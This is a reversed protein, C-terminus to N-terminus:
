RVLSMIVEGWGGEGLSVFLCSLEPLGGVDDGALSGVCHLVNLATIGRVDHCALGLVRHLIDLVKGSIHPLLELGGRVLNPLNGLLYARPSPLDNNQNKSQFHKFNNYVGIDYQNLFHMYKRTRVKEGKEGKGKGDEM